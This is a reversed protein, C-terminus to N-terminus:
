RDREPPDGPIVRQWMCERYKSLCFECNVGARLMKRWRGAHQACLWRENLHENDCISLVIWPAEKRCSNKEYCCIHIGSLNM